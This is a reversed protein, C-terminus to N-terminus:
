VMQIRMFCNIVVFGVTEDMVCSFLHTSSVFRVPSCHDHLTIVM